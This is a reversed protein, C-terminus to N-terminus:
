YETKVTINKGNSLFIITGSIDTRYITANANYLRNLVDLKPLGNSDRGVSIAAYRPHVAQIFQQSTSTSSGHHGAKLVDAALKEGSALLDNEEEKEADGMLLFDTRQYTIKLIISNNNTTEAKRLPGLVEAKASGINFATGAVPHESKIGKSKLALQVDHYEPTNPIIKAPIDPCLYHAVPFSSIAEKLGGIHDSDPHTNVVYDISKAGRRKLYNVVQNGCDATGGDILLYKGGCETIISDAKGVNLMHLSFPSKDACDSFNGLGCFQFIKKWNEEPSGPFASVVLCFIMASFIATAFGIKRRNQSKM